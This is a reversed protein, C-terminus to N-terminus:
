SANFSACSNAYRLGGGSQVTISDFIAESVNNFIILRTFLTDSMKISEGQGSGSLNVYNPWIIPFREGNTNPSYIGPNLHITNTNM